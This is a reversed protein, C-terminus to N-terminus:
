LLQIRGSWTIGGDSSKHLYLENDDRVQYLLYAVGDPDFVIVPDGADNGTGSINDVGTWSQGGNFSYYYSIQSETVGFQTIATGILNNPNTPNIAIPTEVQPRSSPSVWTQSFISSIFVFLCTFLILNYLKM